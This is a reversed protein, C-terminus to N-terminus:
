PFHSIRVYEKQTLNCLALSLIECTALTAKVFGAGFGAVADNTMIGQSEQPSCVGVYYTHLHSATLLWHHSPSTYFALPHM